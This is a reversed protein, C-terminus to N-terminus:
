ESELHAYTTGDVRAVPSARLLLAQTISESTGTVRTRARLEHWRVSSILGLLPPNPAEGVRNSATACGVKPDLGFQNLRAGRLSIRSNGVAFWGDCQIRLPKRPEVLSRRSLAPVPLM